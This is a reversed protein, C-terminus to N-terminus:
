MKLDIKGIRSGKPTKMPLTTWDEGVQGEVIFDRTEKQDASEMTGKIRVQEGEVDATFKIRSGDFEFQQNYVKRTGEAEIVFNEGARNVVLQFRVEGPEATALNYYLAQAILLATVSFLVIEKRTRRSSFDSMRDRDWPAGGAPPLHPM